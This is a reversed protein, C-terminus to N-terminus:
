ADSGASERELSALADAALEAAQDITLDAGRALADSLERPEMSRELRARVRHQTEVDRPAGDLGSQRHYREIAGLLEAAVIPETRALLAACTAIATATFFESGTTQMFPLADHLDRAAESTRGLQLRAIASFYLAQGRNGFTPLHETAEELMEIALEPETLVRCIGAGLLATGTLFSAGRRRTRQVLADSMEVARDDGGFVLVLVLNSTVWLEWFEDGLERAIEVAASCHAIAEPMHNAELEAIGLSSLAYPMPLLGASESCEISREYLVMAEAYRSFYNAGVAAWGLLEARTAPPLDDAHELAAGTWANLEHFNQWLQWALFLERALDTFAVADRGRLWGLATRLNDHEAALLASGVRDDRGKLMPATAAVFAGFHRAHLARVREPDDLEALREEAYERLTELLRYRTGTEHDETAVMSRSVLNALSALVDAKTVDDSTAVSEAAELTFGGSFVSLRAFVVRDAPDLLDYSWDIAGRLTQHRELVRRRGGALLEFREDLRALLEAPSMLKLRAAALEIALPIGDLRRCIEAVVPADAPTVTFGRKAARGRDVFLQVADNDVLADGSSGDGGTAFPRVPYVAEGEVDLAERSTALVRVGPCATVIEDVLAAAADVVHECNDLVILLGRDGLGAIVAEEPTANRREPISLASQLASAVLEGDTVPGLDVFWAGDPHQAAENAAVQLALRTKGVGGVGTLTVVPSERIAASVEALDVARGVFETRQVPLNGPLTDLSRLPPFQAPLEPHTIQILREPRGLDRLRHEGLDVVGIEPALDDRALEETAASAVVQGGHAAAAIRAARNVATGYYDGDRLEAVGTHIGMRVRLPEPLDWQEVHLARQADVAATLADAPVAFVAHLGDGTTKVVHGGSSEVAARLISDHRALAARMAEPHEEWLRTSGELDAFLFTITGTPLGTV